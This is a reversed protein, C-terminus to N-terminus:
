DGKALMLATLEDHEIDIGVRGLLQVTADRLADTDMSIAM